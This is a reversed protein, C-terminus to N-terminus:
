NRCMNLIDFIQTITIYYDMYVIDYQFKMSLTERKFNGNTRKATDEKLLKINKIVVEKKSDKSSPDYAFKTGVIDSTASVDITNGDKDLYTIDVLKDFFYTFPFYISFDNARFYQTHGINYEVAFDGSTYLDYFASANYYNVDSYIVTPDLSNKIVMHKHNDIVIESKAETAYFSPTINNEKMANLEVEPILSNLNLADSLVKGKYDYNVYTGIYRITGSNCLFYRAPTIIGNKKESPTVPERHVTKLVKILSGEAKFEKTFAKEESAVTVYDPTFKPVSDLDIYKSVLESTSPLNMTRAGFNLVDENIIALCLGGLHNIFNPKDKDTFRSTTLTTEKGDHNDVSWDNTISKVAVIDGYMTSRSINRTVFANPYHAEADIYITHLIRRYTTINIENNLYSSHVRALEAFTSDSVNNPNGVIGGRIEGKNQGRLSGYLKKLKEYDINTIKQVKSLDGLTFRGLAKMWNCCPVNGSNWLENHVFRTIAQNNLATTKMDVKTRFMYIYKSTVDNTVEDLILLNISDILCYVTHLKFNVYPLALIHNCEHSYDLKGIGCERQMTAELSTSSFTGAKRISYYMNAACVIHSTSINDFSTSRKTPSHDDMWLKWDADLNDVIPPSIDLWEPKKRSNFTGAPLSLETIRRQIVSTDYAANFAILIDPDCTTFMLETIALLMERESNFGKVVVKLESAYRDIISKMLVVKDKKLRKTDIKSMETKFTNIAYEHYAKEDELESQLNYETGRVFYGYATMTKKDIYSVLNIFPNGNKDVGNEIDFAGIDFKPYKIDEMYVGNVDTHRTATYDMYVLHEIPIDASFLSPHLQEVGHMVMEKTIDGFNHSYRDIQYIEDWYKWRKMPFLLMM